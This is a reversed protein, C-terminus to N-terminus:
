RKASAAKRAKDIAPLIKSALVDEDIPGAQKYVIRGSADVIFTEPFKAVGWDISARGAADDGVGDYPNGHRQLFIRVKAAQDKNAVGYLRVGSLQKMQTLYPHEQPCAVCWTAWFNIATVEGKLNESSVGTGSGPFGALEFEPAQKNLLASPLASPDGTYLSVLFLIALAGFVLVPLLYLWRGMESTTNEGTEPATM